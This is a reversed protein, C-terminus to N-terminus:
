IILDGQENVVFAAMNVDSDIQPILMMCILSFNLDIDVDFKFSGM